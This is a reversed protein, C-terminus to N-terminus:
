SLSKWTRGRIIAHVAGVDVGYHEALQPANTRRKSEAKFAVRIERVQEATLRNRKTREGFAHRGKAISDQRNDFDDGLWLHAPNCCPPNDCRHLVHMDEPIPGNELTWTLRHALYHGNVRIAGYNDKNRCGMYLWCGDTKRVRGWFLAIRTDPLKRFAFGCAPSCYKKEGCSGGVDKSSTVYFATGCRLCPKMRGTPKAGRM